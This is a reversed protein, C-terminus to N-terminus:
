LKNIFVLLIFRAEAEERRKELCAGNGEEFSWRSIQERRSKENQSASRASADTLKKINLTNM